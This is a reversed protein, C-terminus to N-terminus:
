SVYCPSRTRHYVCTESTRIHLTPSETKQMQINKKTKKQALRAGGHAAHQVRLHVCTKAPLLGLVPVIRKCTHITSVRHWSTAADMRKTCNAQSKQSVSSIWVTRDNRAVKDMQVGRQGNKKLNIKILINDQM